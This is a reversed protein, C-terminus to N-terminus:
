CMLADGLNNSETGDHIDAEGTALLTSRHPEDKFKERIIDRLEHWEKGVDLSVVFEPQTRENLYIPPEVTIPMTGRILSSWNSKVKLTTTAIPQVVKAEM